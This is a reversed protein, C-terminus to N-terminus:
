FADLDKAESSPYAGVLDFHYVREAKEEGGALMVHISKTQAQLVRLMALIPGGRTGQEILVRHSQEGLGEFQFDAPDMPERSLADRLQGILDDFQKPRAQVMTYVVPSHKIGFQRRASFLPAKRWSISQGFAATTLLVDTKESPQAEVNHGLLEFRTMLGDVLEEMMASMPGPVFSLNLKRLWDHPAHTIKLNKPSIEM